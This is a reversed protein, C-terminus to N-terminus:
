AEIVNGRLDAFEVVAIIRKQNESLGNLIKQSLDSIRQDLRGQAWVPSACALVCVVMYLSLM